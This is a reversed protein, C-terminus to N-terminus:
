CRPRSATDWRSRCAELLPRRAATEGALPQDFGGLDPAVLSLLPRAMLETVRGGGDPLVLGNLADAAPLRGEGARGRPRDAAARADRAPLARRLRRTPTSTCVVDGETAALARWMADGKGLAPGLEPLLASEQAVRAGRGEAVAATGDGSAADVM